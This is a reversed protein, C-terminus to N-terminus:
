NALVFPNETYDPMGLVFPNKTHDPEVLVFPNKTYDSLLIVDIVKTYDDGETEGKFSQDINYNLEYSRGRVEQWWAM